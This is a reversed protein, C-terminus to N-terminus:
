IFIVVTKGEDRKRCLIQDTGEFSGGAGKNFHFRWSVSFFCGQPRAAGWPRDIRYSVHNVADGSYGLSEAAEKCDQWNSTIPEYNQKCSSGPNLDYEELLVILFSLHYGYFSRGFSRIVGIM